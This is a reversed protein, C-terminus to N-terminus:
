PYWEPGNGSLWLLFELDQTRKPSLSKFPGKQRPEEEQTQLCPTTQPPLSNEVNRDQEGPVLPRILSILHCLMGHKYSFVFVASLYRTPGQWALLLFCLFSPDGRDACALSTSQAISADPGLLRPGSRISYTCVSLFSLVAPVKMELLQAKM